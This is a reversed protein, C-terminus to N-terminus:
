RDKGRHLVHQQRRARNAQACRQGRQIQHVLLFGLRRHPDGFTLVGVRDQRDTERHSPEPRHSADVTPPRTRPDIPVPTARRIVRRYGLSGLCHVGRVQHDAATRGAAHHRRAQRLRRSVLHHQQLGPAIIAGSWVGSSM